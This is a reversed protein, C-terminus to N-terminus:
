RSILVNSKNDKSVTIIGQTNKALYSDPKLKEKNLFLKCM